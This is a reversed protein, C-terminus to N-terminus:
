ALSWSYSWLMTCYMLCRLSGCFLSSTRRMQSLGEVQEASLSFGVGIQWHQQPVRHAGYRDQELFDDFYVSFERGRGIEFEGAGVADAEDDAQELAEGEVLLGPLFEQLRVDGEEEVGEEVGGGFALDELIQSHGRQAHDSRQDLFAVGVRDGEQHLRFDHRQAQADHLVSLREGLGHGGEDDLLDEAVLLSQAVDAGGDLAEECDRGHEVAHELFEDVVVLFVVAEGFVDHLAVGAEGFVHLGAM